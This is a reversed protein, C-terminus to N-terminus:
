GNPVGKNLGDGFGPRKIKLTTCVIAAYALDNRRVLEINPAQCAGEKNNQCDSLNCQVM